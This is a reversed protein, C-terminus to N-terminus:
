NAPLFLLLTPIRCPFCVKAPRAKRFSWAIAWRRTKQGQLFETAAWNRVGAEQLEQLLVHVSSLKGLMSTYWQCKTKLALSEKIMRRVFAVEGGPTVMEVAAGTCASFPPKSKGSASAVLDFSSSYFPPNCITFDIRAVSILRTTMLFLQPAKGRLVLPKLLFWSISPSPWTPTSELNYTTGSFTKVPMGWTKKM